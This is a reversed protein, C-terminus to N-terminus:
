SAALHVLQDGCLNWLEESIKLLAEICRHDRIVHSKDGLADRIVPEQDRWLRARHRAGAYKVHHTRTTQCMRRHGFHGGMRGHNTVHSPDRASALVGAREISGWNLRVLVNCVDIAPYTVSPEAHERM